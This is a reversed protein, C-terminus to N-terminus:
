ASQSAWQWSLRAENNPLERRALTNRTPSHPVSAVLLLNGNSSFHVEVPRKIVLPIVVASIIGRQLDSWTLTLQAAQRIHEDLAASTRLHQFSLSGTPLLHWDTFPVRKVRSRNRGLQMMQLLLVTMEMELQM